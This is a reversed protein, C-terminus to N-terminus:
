RFDRAKVKTILRQGGVNLRAVIGEAEFDGFDSTLGNKVISVMDALTGSGLSKVLRVGLIEAVEDINAVVSDDIDKRGLWFGGNLRVDFLVFQCKDGYLKGAHQIKPGIGEGYLTFERQSFQGMNEATFTDQLYTLLKKPIQSKENRGRFIVEGERMGLRIRINTGDVKETFEWQADKYQEFEPLSYEGQLFTKMKTAPDRKFISQIKEYTKM